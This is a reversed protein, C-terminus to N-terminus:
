GDAAARRALFYSRVLNQLAPELDSAGHADLRGARPAVAEAPIPAAEEAEPEIREQTIKTPGPGPRGKVRDPVPVGLVLSAVGRSKKQESPGGRGNADPNPRNGFGIQLDRSVPPRRDRLSPQVGGRNEQEEEDDDVEEDADVEQDDVDTVQDKSKWDSATPNKNSGKSTGKGATAGSEEENEDPPPPERKEEKPKRAGKPPAKPTRESAESQQGKSSPASQSESAASTSLAGSSRGAGTKGQSEKVAESVEPAAEARMSEAARPRERADREPATVPPEEVSDRESREDRPADPLPAGAAAVVQDLAARARAPRPALGQVLYSVGLLAVLAAAWGLARGVFAPARTPAVLAVDLAARSRAAADEIAAAEFPSQQAQALFEDAAILRDELRLEQDALALAARRGTAPRPREGATVWAWVLTVGLAALAVLSLPALRAEGGTGWRLLQLGLHTAPVLALWPLARQLERAFAARRAAGDLFRSGRVAIQDLHLPLREVQGPLREVTSGREKMGSDSGSSM